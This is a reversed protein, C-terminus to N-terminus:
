LIVNINGYKCDKSIHKIITNLLFFTIRLIKQCIVYEKFIQSNQHM